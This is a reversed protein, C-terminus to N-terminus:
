GSLRKVRFGFIRGGFALREEILDVVENLRVVERRLRGLACVSVGVHDPHANGINETVTAGVQQTRKTTALKGSNCAVGV